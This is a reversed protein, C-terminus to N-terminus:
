LSDRIATHLEGYAKIWDQTDLQGMVDTTINPLHQCALVAALQGRATPWSIPRTNQLGPMHPEKPTQEIQSADYTQSDTDAPM